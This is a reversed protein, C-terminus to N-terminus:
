LKQKIVNHHTQIRKDDIADIIAKTRDTSCDDAIIIELNQYTQLLISNVAAEIYKEANYAPLIVSIKPLNDSPM